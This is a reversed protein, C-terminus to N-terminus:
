THRLLALAECECLILVSTEEDIGYRRCVPNNGLGKIYLHRRLTNNGTLLGIVVKTQTRNFSLLRAGTTLDPGSILERAQRQTDCPGRWLALHQKGMWRNLKLIWKLFMGRKKCSGKWQEGNALYKTYLPILTLNICLQLCM